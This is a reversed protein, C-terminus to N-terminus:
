QGGEQYGECRLVEQVEPVIDNLGDVGLARGLTITQDSEFTISGKPKGIVKQQLGCAGDVQDDVNCVEIGADSQTNLDPIVGDENCVTEEDVDYVTNTSIIGILKDLVFPDNDDRLRKKPREQSGSSEGRNKFLKKRRFKKRVSLQGDTSEELVNEAQEIEELVQNNRIEGMEVEDTMEDIVDVNRGVGDEEDHGRSDVGMVDEKELPESVNDFEEVCDPVWEGVDQQEGRGDSYEKQREKNFGGAM